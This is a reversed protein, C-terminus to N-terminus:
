LGSHRKATSRFREVLNKLIILNDFIEINYTVERERPVTLIGLEALGEPYCRYELTKQLGKRDLVDIWLYSPCSELAAKLGEETQIDRNNVSLIIDGRCIGMKQAHGGPFVDFVKLGRRVSLFLPKERRERWRGYLYISEHSVLAFIVGAAAFFGSGTSLFAMASLLAGCCLHKLATERSKKEPQKTLTIDSYALLGIVCDMGLALVGTQVAEPRFLPWWSGALPEISNNFAGSALHIIFVVPVPWHKQMLFAGAIQEEHRIYVPIYGRSGSYYILASEIIRMLATLMLLSPIHVGPTRFVFALLSLIGGAYSVSALRTNIVALIVTIILLYNLVQVDLVIGAIVSALSGLFGAVLGAFVIEEVIERATRAPRTYMTHMNNEFEMYRGYKMKIIFAIIIYVPLFRYDFFIADLLERAVSSLIEIV